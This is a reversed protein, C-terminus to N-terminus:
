RPLQGRQASELLEGGPEVKLVSNGSVVSGPDVNALRTELVVYLNDEAVVTDLMAVLAILSFFPLRLFSRM